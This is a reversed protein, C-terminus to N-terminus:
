KGYYFDRLLFDFKHESTLFQNVRGYFPCLILEENYKIFDRWERRETIGNTVESSFECFVMDLLLALNVPISIIRPSSLWPLIQDDEVELEKMMPTAKGGYQLHYIPKKDELAKKPAYDFHFKRM